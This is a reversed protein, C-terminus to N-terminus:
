RNHSHKKFEFVMKSSLNLGRGARGRRGWKKKQIREQIKKMTKTSSPMAKKDKHGVLHREEVTSFCKRLILAQSHLLVGKDSLLLCVLPASPRNLICACPLNGASHHHAINETEARLITGM